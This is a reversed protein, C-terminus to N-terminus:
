KLINFNLKKSSLFYFFFILIKCNQKKSSLIKDVPYFIIATQFLCTTNYVNFFLLNSAKHTNKTARIEVIVLSKRLIEESFVLTCILSRSFLQIFNIKIQQAVLLM